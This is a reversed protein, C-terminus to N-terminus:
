TLAYASSMVMVDGCVLVRATLFYMSGYRCLPKAQVVCFLRM